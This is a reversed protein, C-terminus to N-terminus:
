NAFLAAGFENEGGTLLLEVSLTAELVLGLAALGATVSALVSGTAGTLEEGSGAGTAAALGLNGELGLGIAGHVAALAESLHAGVALQLDFCPLFVQGTQRKKKHNVYCRETTQEGYARLPDGAAQSGRDGLRSAEKGGAEGAKGAEIRGSGKSLIM